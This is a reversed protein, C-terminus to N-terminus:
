CELIRRPGTLDIINWGLIDVRPHKDHVPLLSLDRVQLFFKSTGCLVYLVKGKQLRFFVLLDLLQIM